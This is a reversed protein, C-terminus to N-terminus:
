IQTQIFAETTLILLILKPLFILIIIFRTLFQKFLFRNVKLNIINKLPNYSNATFALKLLRITYLLTFFFRLSVILLNLLNLNENLLIDLFLDKSFYVLFNPLGCLVIRTLSLLTNLEKCSSSSNAFRIDQYDKNMVIIIGVCLFFYAKAFAHTIIHFFAIETKGISIIFIILGLQSLTSLAV